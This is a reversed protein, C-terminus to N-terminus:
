PVTQVFIWNIQATASGVHATSGLVNLVAPIQLNWIGVGGQAIPPTNAGQVGVQTPNGESDLARLVQPTVTASSQTDPHLSTIATPNLNMTFGEITKENLAATQAFPTISVSVSWPLTSTVRMYAPAAADYSVNLFNVSRELFDYNLGNIGGDPNPEIGENVDPSSFTAEAQSSDSLHPPEQPLSSDAFVGLTLLQTTLIIAIVTLPNKIKHKM